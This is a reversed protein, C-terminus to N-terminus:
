RHARKEAEHELDDAEVLEQALQWVTEREGKRAAAILKDIIEATRDGDALLERMEADSLTKPDRM